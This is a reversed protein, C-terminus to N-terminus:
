SPFFAYPLARAAIAPFVPSASSDTYGITLNREEDAM